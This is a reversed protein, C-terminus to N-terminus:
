RRGGEAELWLILDANHHPGPNSLWRIKAGHARTLPSPLSIAHPKRRPTTLNINPFM